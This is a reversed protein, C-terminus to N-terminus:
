ESPQPVPEDASDDDTEKRSFNKALFAKFESDEQRLRKALKSSSSDTESKSSLLKHGHEEHWELLEKGHFGIVKLAEAVSRQTASSRVDEGLARRYKATIIDSARQVEQVTPTSRQEDIREEAGNEAETREAFDRHKYEQKPVSEPAVRHNASKQERIQSIEESFVRQVIEESGSNEKLERILEGEDCNLFECYVSEVDELIGNKGDEREFFKFFGAISKAKKCCGYNYNGDCEDRLQWACALYNAVELAQRNPHATFHAIAIKRDQEGRNYERHFSKKYLSGFFDLLKDAQHVSSNQGMGEESLSREPDMSQMPNKPELTQDVDVLPATPATLQGGASADKLTSEREMRGLPQREDQSVKLNRNLQSADNESELELERARACPTAPPAAVRRPAVPAAAGTNRDAGVVVVEQRTAAEPQPQQQNDLTSDGQQRPLDISECDDINMPHEHANNDQAKDSTESMRPLTRQRRHFNDSVNGDTPM